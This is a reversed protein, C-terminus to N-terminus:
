LLKCLLGDFLRDMCMLLFAQEALNVLGIQLQLICVEVLPLLKVKSQMASKMVRSSGLSKHIHQSSRTRSLRLLYSLFFFLGSHFSVNKDARM